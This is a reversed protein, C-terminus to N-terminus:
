LIIPMYILHVMPYIKENERKNFLRAREGEDESLVCSAHPPESVELGVIEITSYDSESRRQEIRVTVQPFGAREGEDAVPPPESVELGVTEKFSVFLCV